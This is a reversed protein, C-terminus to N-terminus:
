QKRLYYFVPLGVLTIGIGIMSRVPDSFITSALIYIGGIAGIVPTVPYLPVRYRGKQPPIKRRLLFVGAIGMTFFIWLVFVLLDTLTNFTGSFIYIVALVSEFILANAPTQFKPHVSGLFAAFPLQKREGMAQPVRAATMLFGNLAGFVSIMIGVTIFAGGGNGFLAKAADTGPTQTSIIVDYPLVQFIAINFLVYVIMVFMVGLSIVRPLTVSPNKLEGAMNAVSIWGDYAWLTGLIAVGFGAGAAPMVSLNEFGPTQKSFIGFGIIAMIPILKGITALIQIVGGCKTSIMNMALIFVLVSVALLREERKDMQIFFGSYTAFAIALAAVSAPYSIVTQVWGVLFGFPKGYLEELYTYFGGSRPIAAAIESVTLAAALTIVGGAIWALISMLPSGANSLVISPKLFIGSGIIMGIVISLAELFTVSKKLSSNEM